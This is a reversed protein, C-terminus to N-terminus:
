RQTDRRWVPPTLYSEQWKLAVADPARMRWEIDAAMRPWHPLLCKQGHLYSLVSFLHRPLRDTDTRCLQMLRKERPTMRDPSMAGPVTGAKNKNIEKRDAEALALGLDLRSGRRDNTGHADHEGSSAPHSRAYTDWRAKLTRATPFSAMLGATLSLANRVREDQYLDAYPAGPGDLWLLIQRNTAPAKYPERRLASKLESRVAGYSLLPALHGAFAEAMRKRREWSHLPTNNPM